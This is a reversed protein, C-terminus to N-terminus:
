DGTEVFASTALEILQANDYLMKEFHPVLWRDDTSYRCLGGSLHDYIGGALMRRLSFVVADRHGAESSRLWELWLVNMFPANPFKPADKQSRRQQAISSFIAAAFAYHTDPDIAAAATVAPAVRAQVHDTLRGAGQTLEERKEDWTRAVAELVQIF